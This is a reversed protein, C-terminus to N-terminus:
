ILRRMLHNIQFKQKNGKPAPDTIEMFDGGPYFLKGVQQFM